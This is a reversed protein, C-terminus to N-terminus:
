SGLKGHPTRQRSAFRVPAASAAGALLALSVTQDASFVWIASVAVVVVLGARLARDLRLVSLAALAGATVLALGTAAFAAVSGGAVGLAIRGPAMRAVVSRSADALYLSVGALLAIAVNLVGHFVAGGRAIQSFAAILSGLGVALSM